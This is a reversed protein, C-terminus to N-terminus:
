WSHSVLEDPSAGTLQYHGSEAPRGTYLRFLTAIDCSLTATERGERPTGLTVSRGPLTVKVEPTATVRDARALVTIADDCAASAYADDMGLAARIDGGHVWTGLAASDWAGNARTIAPGAHLLGKEYEAVVDSAAWGRRHEVEARNGEPSADYPVGSAISSLAAGVHAVIDLVTWESCVTPTDFEARGLARLVPLLTRHEAALLNEVDSM